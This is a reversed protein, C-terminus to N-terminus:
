KDKGSGKRGASEKTQSKLGVREETFAEREGGVLGVSCRGSEDDEDGVTHARDVLPQGRQLM